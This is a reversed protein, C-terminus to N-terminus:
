AMTAGFEITIQIAVVSRENIADCVCKKAVRNENPALFQGRGGGVYDM